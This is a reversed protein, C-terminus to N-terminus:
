GRKRAELAAVMAEAETACNNAIPRGSSTVVYWDTLIRLPHGTAIGLDGMTARLVGLMTGLTAPCAVDPVDDSLTLGGEATGPYESWAVTAGDKDVAVVYTVEGPPDGPDSEAALVRM